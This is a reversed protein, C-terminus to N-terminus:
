PSVEPVEGLPILRKVLGPGAIGIAQGVAITNLNNWEVIQMAIFGLAVGICLPDKRFLELQWKWFHIQLDRQFDPPSVSDINRVVRGWPTGHVLERIVQVKELRDVTLWAGTNLFNRGPQGMPRYGARRRLWVGLNWLDILRGLYERLIVGNNGRIGTLQERFYGVMRRLLFQEAMVHEGGKRIEGLSSGLIDALPHGFSLARESADVLLSTKWLTSFFSVPLIGYGHWLPERGRKGSGTFARLLIRCNHLDGRSLAIEILLQPEGYALKKVWLLQAGAGGSLAEEIRGLGGPSRSGIVLQARYSEAYPPDLLVKELDEKGGMALRCFDEWELFSSKRARLSANLYGYNESPRKWNTLFRPLM